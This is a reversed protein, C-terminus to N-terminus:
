SELVIIYYDHPKEILLFKSKGYKGLFEYHLSKFKRM